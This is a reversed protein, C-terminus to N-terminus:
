FNGLIEYTIGHNLRGGRQSSFYLRDRTPAIAPGTIESHDQDQIQLLPYIDGFPGIVVIQMDGGDEAVM